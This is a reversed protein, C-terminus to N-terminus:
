GHWAALAVPLARHVRQRKSFGPSLSYPGGVQSASEEQNAVGVPQTRGAVPLLCRGSASGGPSDRTRGPIQASAAIAAAGEANAQGVGAAREARRTALSASIELAACVVATTQVAAAQAPAPLILFIGPLSGPLPDTFPTKGAHPEM